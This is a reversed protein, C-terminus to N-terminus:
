RGGRPRQLANAAEGLLITGVVLGQLNAFPRKKAGANKAQWGGPAENTNTAPSQEPKKPASPRAQASSRPPLGGTASFPKNISM